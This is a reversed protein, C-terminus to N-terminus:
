HALIQEITKRLESPLSSIKLLRQFAAYSEKYHGTNFACQAFQFLLGYNYVDSISYYLDNHLSITLAFRSILYGLFHMENKIFYNAIMYLPEARTPRSRFADSFSNLYQKSPMGLQEQLCGIRFLSSYVELEYGGMRARKEYSQLALENESAHDYCMALLFSNEANKPDELLTQELLYADNLNKKKLDYSRHGDQNIILTIKDILTCTRTEKIFLREHIIGEWQWELHNNILLIHETLTEQYQSKVFYLDDNLEPLSFLDNRKLQDDADIILLFDGNNKAYALAENRNHAFNVWPREHLSGPIDCLFDRIIQQTGDTSGTDIIVWYNIIPKVSALCRRIVHSENKVIM